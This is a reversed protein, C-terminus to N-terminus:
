RCGEMTHREHASDATFGNRPVKLYRMCGYAVAIMAVGGLTMAVELPAVSHYYRITYVMAAILLLGIGILIRDKRRIGLYIYLLPLTITLIWFFWFGAIDQGPQLDLNFIEVSLERVVFYNGGLYLTLLSVCQLVQLCSKYHRYTHIKSLKLSVIYIGLSVLIVAFPVIITGVTGLSELVSFLLALLAGHAVISMGMDAFRLVFLVSLILVVLCYVWPSGDANSAMVVGSLIFGGSIWILAADAGSKYHKKERVMFEALAYAGVGFFFCLGSFAKESSGSLMILTFLGFSFFMIITTLIFIGIRMYPNPTYLDVPYATKVAELEEPTICARERANEAQEQIDRNDLNKSNYAIM